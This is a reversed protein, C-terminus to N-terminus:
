RVLEPFDFLDKFLCSFVLEFSPVGQYPFPYDGSLTIKNRSYPNGGLSFGRPNTRNLRIIILSILEPM